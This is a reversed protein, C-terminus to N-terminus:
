CDDDPRSQSHSENEHLAYQIVLETYTIALAMAQEALVQATNYRDRIVELRHPKLQETEARHWDNFCKQAYDLFWKLTEPNM